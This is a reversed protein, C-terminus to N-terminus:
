GATAQTPRHDYYFQEAAAPTFDDLSEHPRETNFWDVWNLTEIEVHDVDRWPGQRRILETKLSGVTSEALANEFAHGVSGVSPRHRRRHTPHHVRDLHIPRGPTTTRLSGPCTPSAREPAPSSPMSLLM